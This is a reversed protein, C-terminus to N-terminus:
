KAEKVTPVPGFEVYISVMPPPRNGWFEVEIYRVHPTARSKSAAWKDGLSIRAIQQANELAVQREYIDIALDSWRPRGLMKKILNRM